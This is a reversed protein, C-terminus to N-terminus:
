MMTKGEERKRRRKKNQTEKEKRGKYKIEKTYPV